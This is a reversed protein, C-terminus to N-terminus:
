EKVTCGRLVQDTHIQDQRPSVTCLACVWVHVSFSFIWIDPADLIFLIAHSIVHLGQHTHSNRRTHAHSRVCSRNHRRQRLGRCSCVVSRRIWSPATRTHSHTSIQVLDQNTPCPEALLCGNHWFLLMYDRFSRIVAKSRFHTNLGLAGPSHWMPVAPALAASLIAITRLLDPRQAQAMSIYLTPGTFWGFSPALSLLFSIIWQPILFLHGCTCRTRVM